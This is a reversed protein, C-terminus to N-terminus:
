LNLAGQIRRTEIAELALIFVKPFRENKCYNRFTETTCGLYLALSTRTFRNRALWVDFDVITM